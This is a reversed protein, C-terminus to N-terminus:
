EDCVGGMAQVLRLRDKVAGLNGMVLLYFSTGYHASRLDFTGDHILPNILLKDLWLTPHIFM